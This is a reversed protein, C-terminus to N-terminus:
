LLSSLLLSGLMGALILTLAIPASGASCVLVMGVLLQVSCSAIIGGRTRNDLRVKRQGKATWIWGIVYIYFVM